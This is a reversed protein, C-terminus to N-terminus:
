RLFVLLCFILLGIILKISTIWPFYIGLLVGGTFFAAIRGDPLAAMQAYSNNMLPM